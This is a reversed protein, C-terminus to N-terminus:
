EPAAATHRRLEADLGVILELRERAAKDLGEIVVMREDCVRQLEEVKSELTLVVRRLDSESGEGAPFDTDQAISTYHAAFLALLREPVHPYLHIMDARFPEGILETVIEYSPFYFYNRNVEDWHARLFEDLAARLIAKSACNATVASVPRYTARLRVPSVTYLIKLRPLHERRISDIEELAAVTEAVSLVKFAHRAPDYSSVPVARWMPEGSIRDYWIESLGLTIILVETKELTERALLRGEETPHVRERDKGIWFTNRPDLKDFAWRFQQAIVALSEFSFGFNILANYPSQPISRNFGRDGLWLIFYRAFCSGIAMVRTDPGIIPRKPAWGFLVPEYGAAQLEPKTQLYQFHEGKFWDSHWKQKLDTQPVVETTSSKWNTLRERTEDM